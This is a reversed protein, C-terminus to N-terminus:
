DKNDCKLMIYGISLCNNRSHKKKIIINNNNNNNHSFYLSLIMRPMVFTLVSIGRAIHRVRYYLTAAPPEYIVRALIINTNNSKNHVFIYKFFSSLVDTDQTKVAESDIESKMAFLFVIIVLIPILLEKYRHNGKRDCINNKINLNNQNNNIILITMTDASIVSLNDM